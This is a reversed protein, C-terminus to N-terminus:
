VPTDGDDEEIIDLLFGANCDKILLEQRMYIKIIVKTRLYHEKNIHDNLWKPNAKLLDNRIQDNENLDIIHIYFQGSLFEDESRDDNPNYQTLSALNKLDFVGVLGKEIDRYLRFVPYDGYKTKLVGEYNAINNKPCDLKWQPIYRNDESIIRYDAIDLTVVIINPSHGKKILNGLGIEIQDIISEKTIEIRPLPKILENFLITNESLAMGNGYQSGWKPHGIHFDDVFVGKDDVQNYGISKIPGKYENKVKDYLKGYQEFLVHLTNNKLYYELLSTIFDSIKRTSLKSKILLDEEEAVQAKAANNFAEFLADKKTAIENPLFAKWKDINSIIDIIISKIESDDKEILYNFDHHHPLAISAIAGTQMKNIIMLCKVAYAWVIKGLFDISHVEGDMPMIWWDWGWFLVVSHDHCRLFSETLDILDEPIAPLIANLYDLLSQDTMKNRYEGILYSALGLFMEKKRNNIEREISELYEQRDLQRLLITKEEGTITPNTLQLKLIETGPHDESPSFYKYLRHGIAIFKNFMTLDKSDYTQKLLQQLQILMEIAFDKYQKIHDKGLDYKMLEYQIYYDATEQFYRGCRDKMFDSLETDSEKLAYHLYLSFFQFTSQFIYHDSKLIARHSITIPLYGIEEIINKDHSKMAIDFIDRLDGMLWRIEPWEGALSGREKQATEMTYKSSHEDMIDIFLESLSTYIEALSNIKGLHKAQINDMMQDKLNRLEIRLQDLKHDQEKIIFTKQILSNIENIASDHTIIKRQIILVTPRVDAVEDKFRKMLYRNKDETLLKTTDNAEPMATTKATFPSNISDVANKYYSYGNQRSEKEIIKAIKDLNSLNIDQIIGWKKLDFKILEATNKEPDFPTYLLETKGEGEGLIQLLYNNGIREEIAEGVSRKLKDKFLAKSEELLKYDDLLLKIIRFIVLIYLASSVFIQIVIVPSFRTWISDVLFLLVTIGVPFLFSERLLVESQNVGISNKGSSFGIIFIVVPFILTAIGIQIPVLSSYFNPANLDIPTGFIILLVYITLSPFFIIAFLNGWNPYYIQMLWDIFSNLPPVLPRNRRLKIKICKIEYSLFCKTREMYKAYALYIFALFFIALFILKEFLFFAQPQNLPFLTGNLLSRLAQTIAVM